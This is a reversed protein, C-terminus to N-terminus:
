HILLSSLKEIKLKDTLLKCLKELYQKDINNFASFQYSDLDLVGYVDNNKLLPVVIESRSDSDCAIHGPFLNVDDVIISSKSQVSTGCVGKGVEIITCATKGQFPGLYLFNNKLIYFGIWSIKDFTDKIAATVNCLSTLLPENPNILDQIQLLLLRYIEEQSLSKDISVNETM